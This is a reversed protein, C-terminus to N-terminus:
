IIDAINFKSDSDSSSTHHGGREMGERLQGTSAQQQNAVAGLEDVLSKSLSQQQQLNYLYYYWHYITCTIHVHM